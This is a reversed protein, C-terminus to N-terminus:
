KKPQTKWRRHIWSWEAPYRRIYSEIMSTLRQINVLVTKDFDEEKKLNFGEEFIIKHTDDRQRIIFCPLIVAGSRLALVIPGVATAAKQGFFEVFVGGTGFNQDLEIVVIENNRLARITKDVCEKRPVSYITKIGLKNRLRNFIKEVRQDRMPRMIGGVSYGDIVLRLMMLPFNGFHGTVMIVGREKSLALDLIRRDEIFVRKRLLETKKMLFISEVGSKAIFTLSNKAIERCEQPTKEQGFAISLSQLAIRRQKVLLLFGVKAFARAFVYLSRWPLHRIILSCFVLSIWAFFRSIIKRIKKFEM